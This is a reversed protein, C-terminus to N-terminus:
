IFLEEVLGVPVKSDIKACLGTGHEAELKGVIAGLDHCKSVGNTSVSCSPQLMNSHHKLSVVFPFSSWGQLRLSDAICLCFLIYRICYVYHLLLYSYVYILIADVRLFSCTKRKLEDPIDHDESSIRIRSDKM